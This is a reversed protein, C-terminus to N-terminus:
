CFLVPSPSFKESVVLDYYSLNECIYKGDAFYFKSCENNLIYFCGNRKMFVIDANKTILVFDDQNIIEDLVNMNSDPKCDGMVTYCLDLLHQNKSHNDNEIKSIVTQKLPADRHAKFYVAHPKDKNVFTAYAFMTYPINIAWQVNWVGSGSDTYQVCLSEDSYSRRFDKLM